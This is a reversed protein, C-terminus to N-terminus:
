DNNKENKGKFIPKSWNQDIYRAITVFLIVVNIVPIFSTLVPLLDGLRISKGSDYRKWIGIIYLGLLLVAAVIYIPFILGM